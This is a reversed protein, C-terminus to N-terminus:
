ALAEMRPTMQRGENIIHLNKSSRTVAVYALRCEENFQDEFTASQQVRKSTTTLVAVNEAELGKASHITGVRIRPSGTLEVGYKTASERWASGHDVLKCWSGSQIAKGLLETGGISEIDDPMIFDWKTYEDTENWKKKTGRKIIEGDTSRSPLIAIARLWEEGNIPEGKELKFLAAMGTQRITPEGTSKTSRYPVGISSLYGMIRTAQFNTRAIMLWDDNGDVINTLDELDYWESISGEGGSPAVGRDWYKGAATMKRLCEEGKALIEAPCRYSKPMTKEKVVDWGLFCASSSGAFGYISQFPDGVAYAYRVDPGDMLRRCVLDLLPSADQQEDFLWTKVPPLEGEPKIRSIGHKPSCSVGAFRLLIDTFDYRDDLRKASEYKEAVVQVESIDYADSDDRERFHRIVEDLPMLTVRHYQWANLSWAVRTDGIWVQNSNDGDIATSLHVGFQDAVWKQDAKSDTIMQGPEIGLQRHCIAHGTRIWGDHTLVEPEIDWAKGAREAAEQRAARTFSMLGISMPDGGTKAKAGEM